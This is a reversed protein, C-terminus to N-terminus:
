YNAVDNDRLLEFRVNRDPDRGVTRGGFVVDKTSRGISGGAPDNISGFAGSAQLRKVAHDSAHAAPSRASVTGQTSFAALFTALVALTIRTSM